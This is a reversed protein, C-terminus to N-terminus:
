RKEAPAGGALAAGDAPDTSVMAGCAPPLVFAPAATADADKKKVRKAQADGSFWWRLSPGCGDDPPPDQPVCLPSDPPCRLRVHFHDHHGWWPRVRAQWPAKATRGECLM